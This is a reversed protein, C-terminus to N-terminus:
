KFPPVFKKRLGANKNGNKDDDAQTNKLIAFEILKLLCSLHIYTIIRTPHNNNSSNHNDKPYPFIPDLFVETSQISLILLVAMMTMEM